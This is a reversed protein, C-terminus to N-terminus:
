QSQSLLCAPMTEFTYLVGAVGKEFISGLFFFFVILIETTREGYLLASPEKYRRKLFKEPQGDSRASSIVSRGNRSTM